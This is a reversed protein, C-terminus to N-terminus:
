MNKLKMLFKAGERLLWPFGRLVEGLHEAVVAGMLKLYHLYIQLRFSDMLYVTADVKHRNVAAM